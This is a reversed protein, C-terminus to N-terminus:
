HPCVSQFLKEDDDDYNYAYYIMHPLYKNSPVCYKILSLAHHLAPARSFPVSM